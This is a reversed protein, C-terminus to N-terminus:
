LSPLGLFVSDLLKLTVELDLFLDNLLVLVALFFLYAENFHDIKAKIPTNSRLAYSGQGISVSLNFYRSTRM